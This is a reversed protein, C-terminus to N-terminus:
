KLSLISELPLSIFEQHVQGYISFNPTQPGPFHILLKRVDKYVQKLSVGNGSDELAIFLAYTFQSNPVGAYASEDDMCASILVLHADIENKPIPLEILFDKHLLMNLDILQQSKRYDVKKSILHEHQVDLNEQSRIATGSHCSDSLVLIKVGAEFKSFILFLEDDIIQRDNLCWTEDFEDEEDGNLDLIQGGHGSYYLILVDGSVMKGALVELEKLLIDSTCDIIVNQSKFKFHTTFYAHVDQADKNCCPLPTMLDHYYSRSLQDVGICLLHNSM